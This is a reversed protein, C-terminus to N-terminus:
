TGRDGTILSLINLWPLGHSTVNGTNSVKCYKCQCTFSADDINMLLWNITKKDFTQLMKGYTTVYKSGIPLVLLIVKILSSNRSSLM